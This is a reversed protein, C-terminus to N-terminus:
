FGVNCNFDLYFNFKILSYIGMFVLIIYNYNIKIILLYVLILEVCFNLILILFLINNFM